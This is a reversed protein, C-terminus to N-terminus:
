CRASRKMKRVEVSSKRWVEGAVVVVVVMVVGGWGDVRRGDAYQVVKYLRRYHIM